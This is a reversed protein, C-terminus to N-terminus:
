LPPRPGRCRAAHVPQAPSRHLEAPRRRRRDVRRATGARRPPHPQVPEVRQPVVHQRVGARCLRPLARREVHRRRAHDHGGAARRARGARGSRGAPARRRRRRRRVHCRRRAGVVPQLVPVRRPLLRQRRRPLLRPSARGEHARHARRHGRRHVVGARHRRPGSRCRAHAPAGPRVRDGPPRHRRPLGGARAPPQHSDGAGHRRHRPGAPRRRDGGAFLVIQSTSYNGAVFFEPNNGFLDLLPQTVALASLGLIVLARTGGSVAGFDVPPYGARRTPAM